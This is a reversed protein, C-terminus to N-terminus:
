TKFANPRQNVSFFASNKEERDAFDANMQKWILDHKHKLSESSLTRRSREPRIERQAYDFRM